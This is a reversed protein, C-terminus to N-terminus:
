ELLACVFCFQIEEQTKGVGLAEAIQQSMKSM